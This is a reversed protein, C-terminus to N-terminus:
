VPENRDGPSPETSTGEVDSVFSEKGSPDAVLEPTAATAQDPDALDAKRERDAEVRQATTLHGDETNDGHGFDGGVFTSDDDPEDRDDHDPTSTTESM